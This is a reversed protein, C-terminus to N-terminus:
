VVLFMLLNFQGVGLHAILSHYTWLVMFFHYHQPNSVHGKRRMQSIWRLLVPFDSSKGTTESLCSITQIPRIRQQIQNEALVSWNGICSLETQQFNTSSDDFFYTMIVFFRLRVHPSLRLTGHVWFNNYKRMLIHLNRVDENGDDNRLSAIKKCLFGRWYMDEKWRPRPQEFVPFHNIRM